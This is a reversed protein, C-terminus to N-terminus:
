WYYSRTLNRRHKLCQICGVFYTKDFISGSGDKLCFLKNVRVSKCEWLESEKKIDWPDWNINREMDFLENGEFLGNGM